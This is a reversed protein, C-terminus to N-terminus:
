NEMKLGLVLKQHLFDDQFLLVLHQHTRILFVFLLLFLNKLHILYVLLVMIISPTNPDSADSSPEVELKNLIASM